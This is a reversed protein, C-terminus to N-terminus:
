SFAQAKQVNSPEGSLKLNEGRSVIKVSFEREIFKLNEDHKGFLKRAEETSHLQVM